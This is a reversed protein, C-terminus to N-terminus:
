STGRRRGKTRTPAQPGENTKFAIPTHIPRPRRHSATDANVISRGRRVQWTLADAWAALRIRGSLDRTYGRFTALAPPTIWLILGGHGLPVGLQYCLIFWPGYLASGVKLATRSIGEGLDVGFLNFQRSEIRIHSTDTPLPYTM